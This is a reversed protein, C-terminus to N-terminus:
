AFFGKIKEFTSYEIKEFNDLQKKTYSHYMWQIIRDVYRSEYEGVIKAISTDKDSKEMEVRGVSFPTYIVSCRKSDLIGKTLHFNRNIYEDINKYESDVIDWKSVVFLINLKSFNLGDRGLMYSLLSHFLRDENMEKKTTRQISKRNTSADSVFIFRKNIRSKDAQLYEVLDKLLEPKKEFDKTPVITKIDEGSIELFNFSLPKKKEQSFKLTFEQLKGAKTRTPLYTDDLEEIWDYLISSHIHKKDDDQSCFELNIDKRKALRYIIFRQLTSKGCDPNGITFIYNGRRNKIDTIMVDYDDSSEIDREFEPEIDSVRELELDPVSFDDDMRPMINDNGM